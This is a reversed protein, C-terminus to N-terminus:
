TFLPPDAEESAGGPMTLGLHGYAAATMQRGKPTRRIFGIQLLFPEVVDELTDREEGMTAAMADIGVPGGEYDRAMVGLFRRDLPDLGLADIGELALADNLVAPTLKGESRVITFDRVRRLLRNAVRPTGRSRGAIQRLAEKEAPLKLLAASREVIQLLEEPTYFRLHHAIGFRSRMPGSILGTRTTAGILTFPQLPINMVQAHPGSDMVVDISFNEMGPYLYEEVVHPMRHIEDIFLVDGGKLNTLIGVLDAPKVLAPGSTIKPPTGNMEDAIIHALTTKGLGPPGSLLVHEMPEGRKKAAGVAIRIKEILDPQGIYEDIKRPRLAPNFADGGGGRGEDEPQEDGSVIRERSM